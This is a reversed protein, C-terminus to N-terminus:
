FKYLFWSISRLSIVSRFNLSESCTIQKGQLTKIYFREALLRQIDVENVTFFPLLLNISTSTTNNSHKM